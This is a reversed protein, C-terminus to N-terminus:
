FQKLAIKRVPPGAYRDEDLDRLGGALLFPCGLTGKKALHRLALSEFGRYPILRYVRLLPAGEAVRGARRQKRPISYPAIWLRPM